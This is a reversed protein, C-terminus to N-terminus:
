QLGWMVPYYSGCYWGVLPYFVFFWDSFGRFGHYHSLNHVYSSCITLLGKQPQPCQRYSLWWWWRKWQKIISKPDGWDVPNRVSVIMMILGVIFEGTNQCLCVFSHPAAVSLRAVDWFNWIVPSYRYMLNRIQRLSLGLGLRQGCSVEQSFMQRLVLFSWIWRWMQVLGWPALSFTQKRLLMGLGEDPVVTFM